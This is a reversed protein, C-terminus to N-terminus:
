EVEKWRPHETGPMAMAGSPMTWTSNHEVAETERSPGLRTAGARLDDRCDTTVSVATVGGLESLSRAARRSTVGDAASAKGSTVAPTM